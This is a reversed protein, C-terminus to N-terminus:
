QLRLDSRMVIQSTQGIWQNSHLMTYHKCFIIFFKLVCMGMRIKDNRPTGPKKNYKKSHLCVILRPAAACQNGNTAMALRGSCIKQVM